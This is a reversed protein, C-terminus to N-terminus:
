RDFVGCVALVRSMEHNRSSLEQNKRTKICIYLYIKCAYGFGTTSRNLQLSVEYPTVRDAESELWFGICICEASIKQYCRVFKCKGDRDIDHDFIKGVGVDEIKTFVYQDMSRYVSINTILFDTESKFDFKYM